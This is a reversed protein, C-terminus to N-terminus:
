QGRNAVHEIEVPPRGAVTSPTDREAPTPPVIPHLRGLRHLDNVRQRLAHVYHAAADRLKRNILGKPAVSDPEALFEYTVATKGSSPSGWPEILMSGSYRRMSGRVQFFRIRYVEGNMREEDFEAFVWAKSVPWPLDTSLMVLARGGDHRELVKSSVVRPAFEKLQEYDSATRFVEDPTADFVGIAKSRDIGGGGPDVFTLVDYRGLRASGDADVSPDAFAPTALAFLSVIGVVSGTARAKRHGIQMGKSM